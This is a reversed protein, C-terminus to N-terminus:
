RRCTRRTRPTRTRRSHDLLSRARHLRVKVNAPTTRMLASIERPTFGDLARLLLTTGLLGPLREIAAVLAPLLEEEDPAWVPAPVLEAAPTPTPLRRRRRLCDVAANCEIRRIWAPLAGDHRLTPWRRLMRLFTEQALDEAEHVDGLAHEARRRVGVHFREYVQAFDMKAM